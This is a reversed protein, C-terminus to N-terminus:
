YKPKKLNLQKTISNEWFPDFRNDSNDVTFIFKNNIFDYKFKYILMEFEIDGFQWFSNYKSHQVGISLKNNKGDFFITDFQFEVCFRTIISYYDDNALVYTPRPDEQESSKIQHICISFLLLFLNLSM